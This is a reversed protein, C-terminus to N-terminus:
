EGEYTDFVKPKVFKDMLAWTLLFGEFGGDIKSGAMLQIIPLFLTRDVAKFFKDESM